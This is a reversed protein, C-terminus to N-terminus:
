EETECENDRNQIQEYETKCFALLGEYTENMESQSGSGSPVHYAMRLQTLVSTLRMLRRYMFDAMEPYHNWVDRVFGSNGANPTQCSIWDYIERSAAYLNDMLAFEDGKARLQRSADGAKSIRMSIERDYDFWRSLPLEICGSKVFVIRLELYTKPTFRRMSGHVKLHLNGNSVLEALASFTEVEKIRFPIFEKDETLKYVDSLLVLAEMFENHKYVDELSGYDDYVGKALALPIYKVCPYCSSTCYANEVMLVAYCEEGSCIPFHSVLCTENWCGM